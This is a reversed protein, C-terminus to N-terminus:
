PRPEDSQFPIVGKTRLKQMLEGLAVEIYGGYIATPTPPPQTLPRESTTLRHGCKCELRRTIFGNQPTTDIVKLGFASCEPCQIGNNQQPNRRPM